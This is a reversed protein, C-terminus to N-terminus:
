LVQREATSLRRSAVQRRGHHSPHAALVEQYLRVYQEGVAAASLKPFPIARPRPELLSRAIAEAFERAADRSGLWVFRCLDGGVERFAPIDSCIVRCGHLLAEVIPLGFGETLSPAVVAGCQRYCAGLEADSLGSVFQVCGELGLREREHVIRQTDPGHIGVVLLRMAPDGGHNLFYRFAQLLLVLNKNRRHQAVCLLFPGSVIGEICPTPGGETEVDVCNPIITSKERVAPPMYRTMLRGTTASVCAIADATVLCERLAVRNLLGKIWGFNQPIEYPYLDHLTVVCSCSLRRQSIPAPYTLHLVDVDNQAALEPLERFYWLNRSWAGRGVDAVPVALRSDGYSVLARHMGVQWSGLVVHLSSVEDRQLLGRVLNLGHRQVGSIEACHSVAAVLVRM